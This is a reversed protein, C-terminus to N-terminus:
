LQDEQWREGQSIQRSKEEAPVERHNGLRGILADVHYPTWSNSEYELNIIESKWDNRSFFKCNSIRSRLDRM